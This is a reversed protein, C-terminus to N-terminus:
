FLFLGSSPEYWYLKAEYKLWNKLGIWQRREPTKILKSCIEWKKRNSRNNVKFLYINAPISIYIYLYPCLWFFNGKQCFRSM